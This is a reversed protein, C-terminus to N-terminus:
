GASLAGARGPEGALAQVFALLQEAAHAHSLKQTVHARAAEGWARARARDSALDALAAGLAEPSRAPVVRGCVGDVVLGANGPIDTMVAPVGLFLAEILAKPASENHSPMVLGDCAATINVADTRYGLVHIRDRMPSAALLRQHEPLEMGTGVHLLHVGLERPIYSTARLLDVAGKVHRACNAVFAVAFAGEPVGLARLDAKPTGEYWAPDHGKTIVRTRGRRFLLNREIHAAVQETNCWYADIRPHLLKLYNTPDYWELHGDFGRYAVVKVPLGVAATAGVAIADNNMLFAVQHGGERLERRIRRSGDLDIKRTPHWRIVRLGEAELRSAYPSDPACMVTVRVGARALKVFLEAEPRAPVVNRTASVVLISPPMPRIYLVVRKAFL